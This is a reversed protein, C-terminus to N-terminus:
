VLEKAVNLVKGLLGALSSVLPWRLFAKVIKAEAIRERVGNRWAKALRAAALAVPLFAVLGVALGGAVLSHNFDTWPVFPLNAMRGFLPALADWKLIAYGVADLAPDLVGVGLKFIGLFVLFVANNIKLFFSLVFLAIWLLNGAPVLAMLLALAVGAGIEGARTNSNLAAVVKAIWVIFM